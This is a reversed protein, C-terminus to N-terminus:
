PSHAAGAGAPSWRRATGHTSATTTHLLASHLCALAGLGTPPLLLVLPLMAPQLGVVQRCVHPGRGAAAQLLDQVAPQGTQHSLAVLFTHRCSCISLRAAPTEGPAGALAAAAFQVCLAAGQAAHVPLWPLLLAAALNGAAIHKGQGYTHQV